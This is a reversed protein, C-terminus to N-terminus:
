RTQTTLILKELRRWLAQLITRAEVYGDSSRRLTIDGNKARLLM